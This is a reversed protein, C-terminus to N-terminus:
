IPYIEADATVKIYYNAARNPTTQKVGTIAGNETPYQIITDTGFYDSKYLIEISVSPTARKTVFKTYSSQWGTSASHGDYANYTIEFYRKCLLVELILPRIEFNTKKNGYELQAFIFDSSNFKVAYQTNATLTIQGGNPVSVGNVKATATGVWSLTYTGSLVFDKAEIYQTFNTGDYYWGDLNYANVKASISSAGRQNVRKCGNRILNKFGTISTINLNGLANEMQKKNVAEDDAEGDSVKFKQTASGALNAKTNLQALNVAEDTAAANAVKFKNAASGNKDAKNNKLWLTRNALARAQANAIGNEGGLVDDNTEIQYIDPTFESTEILNSM